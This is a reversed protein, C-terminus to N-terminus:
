IGHKIFIRQKIKELKGSAQLSDLLQNIQPILFQYKSKNGIFIHWGLKRISPKTFTIVEDLVGSKQAQYRFMEAQEIYVDARQLKLMMPINSADLITSVNKMNKLANIHWGSGLMHIHRLGVIKELDKLSTVLSLQKIYQNNISSHMVFHTQYFPLKSALTYTTRQPTPVTFFGDKVGQEVLVQCRAWPCSEHIVKLGLRKVLIEEVFDRQIGMPMGDESWAFPKYDAGYTITIATEAFCVFSVSVCFLAALLQNKM